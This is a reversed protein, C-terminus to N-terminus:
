MESVENSVKSPNSTVENSVKLTLLLLFKFEISEFNSFTLTAKSTEYLEFSTSTANSWNCHALLMVKLSTEDTENDDKCFTLEENPKMLVENVSISIGFRVAIPPDNVNTEFLSKSSISNLLKVEILPPKSMEFLVAKDTISPKSENSVTPPAIIKMPLKVLAEKGDNFLTEPPTSM